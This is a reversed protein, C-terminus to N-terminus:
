QNEMQIFDLGVGVTNTRHLHITNTEVSTCVKSEFSSENYTEKLKELFNYKAWFLAKDAEKNQVEIEVIREVM